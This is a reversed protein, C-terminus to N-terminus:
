FCGRQKLENCERLIETAESVERGALAGGPALPPTNSSALERCLPIKDQPCDTSSGQTATVSKRSERAKECGFVTMLCITATLCRFYKM